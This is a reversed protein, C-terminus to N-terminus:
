PNKSGAPRTTNKNTLVMNNDGAEVLKFAKRATAPQADWLASPKGTYTVEFIANGSKYNMSFHKVGKTTRISEKLQYLSTDDYDIDSVLITITDGSKKLGGFLSKINNVAIKLSDLSNGQAAPKTAPKTAPKPPKTQATSHAVFCASLIIVQICTIFKM